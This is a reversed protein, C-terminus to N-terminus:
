DATKLGHEECDIDAYATFQWSGDIRDALYWGCSYETSGDSYEDRWLAKTYATSANITEHRADVLVARLWGESKWGELSEAVWDRDDAVDIDGDPSHSILKEAYVSAIEDANDWPADAWLPAYEKDFWAGESLTDAMTFGPALVLVITLIRVKM